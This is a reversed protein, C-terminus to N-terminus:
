VDKLKRFLSGTREEQQSVYPIHPFWSSVWGHRDREGDEGSFAPFQHRVLFFAKLIWNCCAWGKHSKHRKIDAGRKDIPIGWFASTSTWCLNISASSHFGSQKRNKKHIQKFSKVRHVHGLSWTKWTRIHSFPVKWSLLLHYFSFLTFIQGHCM